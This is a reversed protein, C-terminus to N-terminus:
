NLVPVYMGNSDLFVIYAQM